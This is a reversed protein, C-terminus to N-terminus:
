EEVELAKLVPGVTSDFVGWANRVALLDDGNVWDSGAVWFTNWTWVSSPTDWFRTRVGFDHANLVLEQM